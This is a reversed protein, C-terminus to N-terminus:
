PSHFNPRVDARRAQRLSPLRRVDDPSPDASIAISRPQLSLRLLLDLSQARRLLANRRLYNEATPAHGWKSAGRAGALCHYVDVPYGASAGNELRGSRKSAREIPDLARQPDPQRGLPDFFTRLIELKVASDKHTGFVEDPNILHHFQRLQRFSRAVRNRVPRGSRAM